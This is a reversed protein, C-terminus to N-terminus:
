TPLGSFRRFNKPPISKLTIYGGVGIIDLYEFFYGGVTKKIKKMTADNKM